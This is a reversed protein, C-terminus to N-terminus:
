ERALEAVGVEEVRDGVEERKCKIIEKWEVGSVLSSPRDKDQV